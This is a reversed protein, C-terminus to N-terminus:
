SFLVRLYIYPAGPYLALHPQMHLRRNAFVFSKLPVWPFALRSALTSVFRFLTYSPTNKYVHVCSEDCPHCEAAMDTWSIPFAPCSQAHARKMLTPLSITFLDQLPFCVIQRASDLGMQFIASHNAALARGDPDFAILGEGLTGIFEPQSHCRFIFAHKMACLFVRNEIMQASMNLLVMTHKQALEAESSADLIALVEGHPDFIPAAACTLNANRTFYHAGKHIVLPKREVLCTGIGNTGQTAESWIAGTQLGVYAATDTFMPDGIYNLLAGERDTLIIAHGSGALQQYLNTMEHRAIELLHRSREQRDRIDGQLMIIPDPPDNPDLGYGAHCRRWSAVTMDDMTACIMRDGALAARVLSAHDSVGQHMITDGL